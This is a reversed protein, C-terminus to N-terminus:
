KSVILEFKGILQKLINNIVLIKVKIIEEDIVVLTSIIIEYNLDVVKSMLKPENNFDEEILSSEVSKEEIRLSYTTSNENYIEGADKGLVGETKSTYPKKSLPIPIYENLPNVIDEPKKEEKKDDGDKDDNNENDKNDETEEEDTTETTNEEEKKKEEKLEEIENELMTNSKNSASNMDYIISTKDRKSVLLYNPFTMKELKSIERLIYENIIDKISNLSNDKSVLLIDTIGVNIKELYTNNDENNTNNNSIYVTGTCGSFLLLLTLFLVFISSLVFEKNKIRIKKM